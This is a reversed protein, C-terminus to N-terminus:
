IRILFNSFERFTRFKFDGPLVRPFGFKAPVVEFVQRVTAKTEHLHAHLEFKSLRHLDARFNGIEESEADVPLFDFNVNEALSLFTHVISEHVERFSWPFKFNIRKVSKRIVAFKREDCVDLHGRKTVLNNWETFLKKIESTNVRGIDRLLGIGQTDMPSYCHKPIRSWRTDWCYGLFLMLNTLIQLLDQAFNRAQFVRKLFKKSISKTECTQVHFGIEPFVFQRLKKWLMKHDIQGRRVKDIIEEFSDEFELHGFHFLYFLLNFNMHKLVRKGLISLVNQRFRRLLIKILVKFGYKNYEEKRKNKYFRIWIRPDKAGGKIAEILSEKYFYNKTFIINTMIQRENSSLKKVDEDFIRKYTFLKVLFSKLNKLNDQTWQLEKLSSDKNKKGRIEPKERGTSKREEAEPNEKEFNENRKIPENAAEPLLNVMRFNNSNANLFLGRQDAYFRTQDNPWFLNENKNPCVVNIPFKPCIAPSKYSSFCIDSRKSLIQHSKSTCNRWNPATRPVDSNQALSANNSNIKLTQHETQTQNAMNFEEFAIARTDFKEM